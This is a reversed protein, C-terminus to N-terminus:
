FRGTDINVMELLSEVYPDSRSAALELLTDLAMSSCTYAARKRRGCRGSWRALPSGHTAGLLQCWPPTKPDGNQSRREARRETELDPSPLVERSGATRDESRVVSADDVADQEREDSRSAAAPDPEEDGCLDELEPDRSP